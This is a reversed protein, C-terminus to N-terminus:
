CRSPGAVPLVSQLLSKGDSEGGISLCDDAEACSHTERRSRHDCTARLISRLVVEQQQATVTLLSHKAAFDGPSEVDIQM